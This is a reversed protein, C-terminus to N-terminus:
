TEPKYFTMVAPLTLVTGQVAVAM